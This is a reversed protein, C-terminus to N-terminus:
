EGSERFTELERSGGDQFHLERANLAQRRSRYVAVDSHIVWGAAFPGEIALWTGAPHDGVVAMVDGARGHGVVPSFSDPGEHLRAIEALVVVHREESRMVPTQPLNIQPPSERCAALGVSLVAAIIGAVAVTGRM